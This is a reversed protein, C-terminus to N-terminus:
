LQTSTSLPPHYLSSSSSSSSSTTTLTRWSGTYLRLMRVCNVFMAALFLWRSCCSAMSVSLSKYELLRNGSRRNSLKESWAGCTLVFVVSKTVGIWTHINVKSEIRNKKKRQRYASFDADSFRSTTHYKSCSNFIWNPSNTSEMMRPLLSLKSTPIEGKETVKVWHSNDEM